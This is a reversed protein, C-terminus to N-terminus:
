DDRTDSRGHEGSDTVKDSRADTVGARARKVAARRRTGRARASSTPTAATTAAPGAGTLAADAGVRGDASTVAAAVDEVRSPMSTLWQCPVTSQVFTAAAPLRNTKM